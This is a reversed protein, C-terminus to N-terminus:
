KGQLTELYRVLTEIRLAANEAGASESSKAFVDGWSPMDSDAHASSGKGDITKVVKEDPFVGNNRKTLQTLDAPRKKLTKAISGDGHAETGHCAACYVRYAGAGSYTQANARVAVFMFMVGAVAVFGTTRM